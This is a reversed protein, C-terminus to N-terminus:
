VPLHRGRLLLVAFVRLDFVWSFDCLLISPKNQTSGVKSMKM